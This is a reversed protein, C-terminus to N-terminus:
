YKEITNTNHATNFVEAESFTARKSMHAYHQGQFVKFTVKGKLQDPVGGTYALALMLNMEMKDDVATFAKKMDTKLDQIAFYNYATAAAVAIVATFMVTWSMISCCRRGEQKAEVVQVTPSVGSPPAAAIDAQETPGQQESDDSYQPLYTHDAFRGEGTSTTPAMEINDAASSTTTM